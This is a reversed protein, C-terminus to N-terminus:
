DAIGYDEVEELARSIRIALAVNPCGNVRNLKRCITSASTRGDACARRASEQTHGTLRVSCKGTDGM